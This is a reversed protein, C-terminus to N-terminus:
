SYDHCKRPTHAAYSIQTMLVEEGLKKPPFFFRDRVGWIVQRHLDKAKLGSM